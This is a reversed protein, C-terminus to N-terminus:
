CTKTWWDVEEMATFYIEDWEAGADHPGCRVIETEIM